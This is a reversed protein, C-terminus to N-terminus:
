LLRVAESTGYKAVLRDLETVYLNAIDAAAKADTDEVKITIVGERTVTVDTNRNLQEIAEGPYKVRYREQLGFRRVTAEAVTRSKLIGLLMDRNPTMSPGTLGPVQQLLASAAAMGSLFSAGAERPVLLS